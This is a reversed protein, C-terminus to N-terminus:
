APMDRSIHLIKQLRDLGDIYPSTLISTILLCITQAENTQPACDLKQGVASSSKNRHKTVSQFLVTEKVLATHTHTHTHIYTHLYSHVFM